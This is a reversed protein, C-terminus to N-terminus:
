FENPHLPQPWENRPAIAVLQQSGDSDFRVIALGAVFVDGNSDLPLQFVLDGERIGGGGPRPRRPKFYSQGPGLATGDWVTAYGTYLGVPTPYADQPQNPPIGWYTQGNWEVLIPRDGAAQTRRPPMWRAAVDKATVLLRLPSPNGIGIPLSDPSNNIIRPRIKLQAQDAVLQGDPDLVPGKCWYVVCIEAPLLAPDTPDAPPCLDTSSLAIAPPSPSDPSPESVTIVEDSDAPEGKGIEEASSAGRDVRVWVLGTALGCLVLLIAVETARVRQEGREGHYWALVIAVPLGIVLLVPISRTIEPPWDYTDSLLAVVQFAVWAGAVYALTWRVLKRQKLREIFSVLGYTPPTVFRWHGVFLM